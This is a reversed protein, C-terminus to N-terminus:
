PFIFTEKHRFLGNLINGSSHKLIWTESGYKCHELHLLQGIEDHTWHKYKKYLIINEQQINRERWQLEQRSKEQM